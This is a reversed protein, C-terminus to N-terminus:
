GRAGEENQIEKFRSWQDSLRYRSPIFASGGAPQTKPALVVKADGGDGRMETLLSPVM